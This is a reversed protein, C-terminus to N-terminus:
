CQLCYFLECNEKRKGALWSTFNVWLYGVNFWVTSFQYLVEKSADKLTHGPSTAQLSAIKNPFVKWVELVCQYMPIWQPTPILPVSGVRFLLSSLCIWSSQTECMCFFWVARTWVDSVTVSTVSTETLSLDLPIRARLAALWVSGAWPGTQSSSGWNMASRYSPVCTLAPM